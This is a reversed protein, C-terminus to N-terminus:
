PLTPTSVQRAQGSLSELFAVIASIESYSQGLLPTIDLPLGDPSQAPVGRYYFEVVQTLTALSGGQMYPATGAVDRLEPTRFAYAERKNGTIAVRSEDRFTTGLRYYKGDTFNPGNHCRM